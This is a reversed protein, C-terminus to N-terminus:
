SPRSKEKPKAKANKHWLLIQRGLIPTPVDLRLLAKANRRMLYHTAQDSM